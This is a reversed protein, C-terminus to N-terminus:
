LYCSHLFGIIKFFNFGPPLLDPFFALDKLYSLIWSLGLKVAQFHIRIRRAPNVHPMDPIIGYTIDYSAKFLHPAEIHEMRYAPISQAQRGFIRGNFMANM